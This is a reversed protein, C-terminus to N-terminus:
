KWTTFPTLLRYYEFPVPMGLVFPVYLAGVVVCALCFAWAALRRGRRVGGGEGGETVQVGRLEQGGAGPPAMWAVGTFRALGTAVNAPAGGLERRFTRAIPERGRASTELVDWLIEGFCVVDLM